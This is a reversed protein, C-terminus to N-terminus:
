RSCSAVVVVDVMVVVVLSWVFLCFLCVFVCVCRGLLCCRDRVALRGVLVCVCVVLM